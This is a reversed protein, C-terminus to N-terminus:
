SGVLVALLRTQAVAALFDPAIITEFSAAQAPSMKQDLYAEAAVWLTGFQKQFSATDRHVVTKASLPPM